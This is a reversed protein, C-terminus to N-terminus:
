YRQLPLPYNWSVLKTWNVVGVGGETELGMEDIVKMAEVGALVGLIGDYRGGTPQTDLHSGIFTPPVDQRRGPRVAFVNGMEDVTINCKLEKMTQVFWDRVKGDEESLALRQM